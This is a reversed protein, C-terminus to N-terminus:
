VEVINSDILLYPAILKRHEKLVAFGTILTNYAETKILSDFQKLIHFGDDGWHGVVSTDTGGCYIFSGDLILRTNKDRIEVPHIMGFKNMKILKNMDKPAHILTNSMSPRFTRMYDTINYVQYRHCYENGRQEFTVTMDLKGTKRNTRWCLHYFVGTVTDIFEGDEYVDLSYKEKFKIPIILKKSTNIDRIVEIFKTVYEENDPYENSLYTKMVSSLSEGCVPNFRNERVINIGVSTMLRNVNYDRDIIHGHVIINSVDSDKTRELKGIDSQTAMLGRFFQEASYCLHRTCYRSCNNVGICGSKGGNYCIEKGM